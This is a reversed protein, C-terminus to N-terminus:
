NKPFLYVKVPKKPVTSIKRVSVLPWQDDEVVTKPDNSSLERMPISGGDYIPSLEGLGGGDLKYPALSLRPPYAASRQSFAEPSPAQQPSPARQPVPNSARGRGRDRLRRPVLTDAIYELFTKTTGFVVFTLLSASAGPIFLLLDQHLRDFSLDPSERLFDRSNQRSSIVQFIISFCQYTAIAVFGITFRVVLWNDYISRRRKWDGGDSVLTNSSESSNLQQGYQVSWSLLNRRTYIYKILIIILLVGSGSMCFAMFSDALLLFTVTQKQVSRLRLIGVLLAPLFVATAKAIYAARKRLSRAVELHFISQVLAFAWFFILATEVNYCYLQIYYFVLDIGASNHSIALEPNGVNAAAHRFQDFKIDRWRVLTHIQQAVSAATSLGTFYSILAIYSLEEDHAYVLWAMLFSCALCFLSYIIVGVSTALEEQPLQIAM